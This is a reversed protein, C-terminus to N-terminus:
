EAHGQRLLRIAKAVAWQQGPRLMAASASQQHLWVLTHDTESPPGIVMYDTSYFLHAIVYESRVGDLSKMYEGTQGMSQPALPLLGTEERFERELAIVASEGTEIGGGPLLRKGSVEVAAVQGRGDFLVCYAGPRPSYQVGEEPTGFEQLM